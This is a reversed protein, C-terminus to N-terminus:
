QAERLQLLLVFLQDKLYDVDRQLEDNDCRLNEIEIKHTWAYRLLVELAAIDVTVTEGLYPPSEYDERLKISKGIRAVASELESPTDWSM